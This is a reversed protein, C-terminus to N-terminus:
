ALLKIVYLHSVQLSGANRLARFCSFSCYFVKDSDFSTLEFETMQLSNKILWSRFLDWLGAFIHPKEKRRQSFTFLGGTQLCNRLPTFLRNLELPLNLLSYQLDSFHRTCKRGYKTYNSLRYLCMNGCVKTIRGQGRKSQTLISWNSYDKKNHCTSQDKVKAM